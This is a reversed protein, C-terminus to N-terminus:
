TIKQVAKFGTSFLPGILPEQGLAWGGTQGGSTQKCFNTTKRISITHLQCYIGCETKQCKATSRNQINNPHRM